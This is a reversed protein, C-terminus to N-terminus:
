IKRKIDILYELWMHYSVVGVLSGLFFYLARDIFTYFNRKIFRWAKQYWKLRKCIMSYRFADAMDDHKNNPLHKYQKRKFWM